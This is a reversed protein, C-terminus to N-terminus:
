DVVADGVRWPARFTPKPSATMAQSMGMGFVQLQVNYTESFSSDCNATLALDASRLSGESHVSAPAPFGKTESLTAPAM